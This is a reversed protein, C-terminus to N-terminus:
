QPGPANASRPEDKTNPCDATVEPKFRIVYSDWGPVDTFCEGEGTGLIGMRPISIVPGDKYTFGRATHGTVTAITGCTSFRVQTAVPPTYKSRSSGSGTGLALAGVPGAIESIARVGPVQPNNPAHSM